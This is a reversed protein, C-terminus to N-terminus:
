QIDNIDPILVLRTGNEYFNSCFTKITLCRVARLQENFSRKKATKCAMRNGRVKSLLTANGLPVYQGGTMHSLAMLFDRTRGSVGCGVTYVTVSKAALQRGIEM